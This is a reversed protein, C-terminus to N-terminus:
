MLNQNSVSNWGSSSSVSMTKFQARGPQLQRCQAGEVLEMGTNENQGCLRGREVAYVIALILVRLTFATISLIRRGMRHSKPDLYHEIGQHHHLCFSSPIKAM